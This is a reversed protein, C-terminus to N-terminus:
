EDEEFTKVKNDKKHYNFFSAILHDLHELKDAYEIMESIIPFLREWQEKTLLNTEYLDMFQEIIETQGLKIEELLKKTTGIKVKGGYRLLILNHFRTLLELQTIVRSLLDKPLLLFENERKDINKLLLQAKKVASIMQRFLVVKRAKSYRNRLLYNREEKFFLYYNEIKIMKDTLRNIDSRLTEQSADRHVVLMIWQLTQETHKVIEQYLKTEYRPPLFFLNVFFASFIGILIHLLRLSAFLIFNEAPSEMIIIVTVVALSIINTELKLKLVVAITIIVVIGIVFPENGFTLVFSVALIAGIINAQLHELLVQFSRYISPQIAFVAAVAAFVPQELHLINALYLALMIAIGTKFIRAGLKM